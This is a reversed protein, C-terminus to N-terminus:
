AAPHPATPPAHMRGWSRLRFALAILLVGSVLAYAGIWLIMALAGAGPRAILFLGFAVGLLGAVIFMWEGTIVRRLRVAAVIEFAGIVIAWAAVLSLLALATVAPALFTVVGAAIGLLGGLLLMGWRQQGRERALASGVMFMGDVIAWAGFWLVLVTLTVAPNTLALVGFLLALVGRLLVWGWNRTLTEVM